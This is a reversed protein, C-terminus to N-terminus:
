YKAIYSFNSFHNIHFINFISIKCLLLALTILLNSFLSNDRLYETSRNEKIKFLNISKESDM